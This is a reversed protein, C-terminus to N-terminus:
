DRGWYRQMELFTFSASWTILVFGTLADTGSLFRVVGVPVYDGFGVTTFTITSFYVLDLFGLGSAPIPGPASAHFAGIMSAPVIMGYEFVQTLVAYGAAFLWIETIHLGLEAFILVVIKARHHLFRRKILSGSWSLGEYHLLVATVVLAATVLVTALHPWGIVGVNMGTSYPLPM